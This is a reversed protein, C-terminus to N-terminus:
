TDLTLRLVYSQIWLAALLDVVFWHLIIQLFGPSSCGLTTVLLSNKTDGLSLFSLVEGVSYSWLVSFVSDRFQCRTSRACGCRAPITCEGQGCHLDAKQKACWCNRSWLVHNKFTQASTITQDPWCLAGASVLQFFLTLWQSVHVSSSWRSRSEEQTRSRQSEAEQAHHSGAAAITMDVPSLELPFHERGAETLYLWLSVLCLLDLPM